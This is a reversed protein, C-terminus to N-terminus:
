HGTLWVYYAYLQEYRGWYCPEHPWYPAWRPGVSGQHAGHQGWPDPTSALFRIRGNYGNTECIRSGRAAQRSGAPFNHCSHLINYTKSCLVCYRKM